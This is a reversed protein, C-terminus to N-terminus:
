FMEDNTNTQHVHSSSQFFYGELIIEASLKNRQATKKNKPINQGHVQMRHNAEETSLTENVYSVPLAFRETLQKGFQHIQNKISGMADNSGGPMGVVLCVPQWQQILKNIELYDPEGNRVQVIGIGRGQGIHSHGVAVGIRRTGYDFAIVNGSPNVM